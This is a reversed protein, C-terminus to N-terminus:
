THRGPLALERSKLFITGAGAMFAPYLLGLFLGARGTFSWSVLIGDSLKELPKYHMSPAVYKEIGTVFRTTITNLRSPKQQEHGHHHCVIHTDEGVLVTFYHVSLSIVIIACTTFTAVPFSFMAGMTLGLAAIIALHFFLILISRIYNATFSSAKSMLEIGNTQAFVVSSKEETEVNSFSIVAPLGPRVSSAPIYLINIGDPNSENTITYNEPSDLTGAQWRGTVPKRDRVSTSFRYRIAITEKGKFSGPIDFIWQRTMDPGVVFAAAKIRNEIERFFTEDNELEPPIQRSAIMEQMRAHAKEHVPEERPAVVLRGVLVESYLAQMQNDDLGANKVELMLLIYVTSGAILLLIANMILIGLWKGFWVEFASVPKVTVLQIQRGAIEQSISSCSSWMTSAGLIISTLGLTYFLLITTRGAFTGDGKISLPLGIVAVSLIIILSLVLRSRIAIRISNLAIATIRNIM